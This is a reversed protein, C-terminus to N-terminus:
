ATVERPIYIGSRTAESRDRLFKAVGRWDAAAAVANSTAVSEAQLDDLYLTWQAAARYVAGVFLPNGTPLELWRHTGITPPVGHRELRHLTPALREITLAFSIERSQCGGSIPDFQTTM